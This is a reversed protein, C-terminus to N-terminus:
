FVGLTTCRIGLLGHMRSEEFYPVGVCDRRQLPYTNGIAELGISVKLWTACILMLGFLAGFYKLHM